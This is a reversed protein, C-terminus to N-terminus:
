NKAIYSLSKLEISINNINAVEQIFLDDDGSPIHIHSAFGKNDFFISKKYALNRGVGMYALGNLAFSLYQQAINFTDFRILKNLLGNKKLLSIM